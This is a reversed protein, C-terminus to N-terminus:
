RLVSKIDSLPFKRSAETKKQGNRVEQRYISERRCLKLFTCGMHCIKIVPQSPEKQLPYDTLSLTSTPSCLLQNILLYFRGSLAPATFRSVSGREVVRPLRAVRVM